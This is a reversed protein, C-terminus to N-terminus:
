ITNYRLNLLLHYLLLYMKSPNNKEKKPSMECFFNHARSDHIPDGPPEGNEGNPSPTEMVLGDDSPFDFLNQDICYFSKLYM